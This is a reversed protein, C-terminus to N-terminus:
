KKGDQAGSSYTLELCVAECGDNWSKYKQEAEYPTM